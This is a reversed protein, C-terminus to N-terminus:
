PKLSFCILPLCNLFQFSSLFSPFVFTGVEPAMYLPSGCLTEALGQPQLARAFGFDAIKLVGDAGESSLLLNQPKLDRHVLNNARLERLGAALQRMLRRADAEPVRGAVRLRQALDGGSCYETVLFVKGDEPIVDILRVVKQHDIRRLISVEGELSRRLKANLRDLAIEKIAAEEGTTAHRARWVFAFSGSGLLAGLAWVGGVLRPDGSTGTSVRHAM